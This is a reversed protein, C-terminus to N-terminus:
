KNEEGSDKSKKKKENEKKKAALLKDYEKLEPSTLGELFGKKTLERGRKDKPTDDPFESIALENADIVLESNEIESKINNPLGRIFENNEM